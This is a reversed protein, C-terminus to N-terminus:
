PSSLCTAAIQLFEKIYATAKEKFLGGNERASYSMHLIVDSVTAYDIQRLQADTSLELQWTSIAGAGEFPLYREDRFNFEFMGADNQATSTAIAKVPAYATRFRGDDLPLGEDHEHEYNGESNMATTSRVSSQLLRLTCSVATYPGAICPISLRVSKVRRFYHGQFDLDFLEEPVSVDCKGTERLQILALPNLRALSISRTLELERRNEELYAKDLQRLALQLKEGAVLGQQSNDWYGYQIFSATETGMEFKYAQEAKKAMEYALNYSQKYVAFLQEKMWQYLEQNTFKGKLFLAVEAADLIQQKHNELEKQAVQIRIDASTIQKDLQIIERAALNGQLTWDQERRIYSAMKAAKAAALSNLQSSTAFMKAASGAFWSLERGGFGAGAGM